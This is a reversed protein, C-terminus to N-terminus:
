LNSCYQLLELWCSTSRIIEVGGERLLHVTTREGAGPETYGGRWCAVGNTSIIIDGDPRGPALPLRVSEGEQLARFTRSCECASVTLEAIEQGTNNYLVIHSVSSRGLALLTAAALLLVSGLAWRIRRRAWWRLCSGNRM